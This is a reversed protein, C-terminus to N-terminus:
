RLLVRELAATAEAGHSVQSSTLALTSAIALYLPSHRMMRQKASM